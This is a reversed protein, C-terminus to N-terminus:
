MARIATVRLVSVPGDGKRSAVLVGAGPDPLWAYILKQSVIGATRDEVQRAVLVVDYTCDGLVLPNGPAFRSFDVQELAERGITSNRVEVTYPPTLADPVPFETDLIGYDMHAIPPLLSRGNPALAQQLFPWIGHVGMSRVSPRGDAFSDVTEIIGPSMELLVTSERSAFSVLVGHPLNTATVCDAMAPLPLMALLCALRM